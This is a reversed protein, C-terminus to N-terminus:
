RTIVMRTTASTNETTLRAFYIGTTLDSTDISVQNMGESMISNAAVMVQRGTIDYITLTIQQQEPLSFAAM